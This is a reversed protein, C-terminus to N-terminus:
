SRGALREYLRKLTAFEADWNFREDILRRAVAGVRARQGAPRSLLARIGAAISAPDTPNVFEAVGTDALLERWLPFDSAVVPMGAGLYEFLKTPQSNLYNPEPLLTVFGFDANGFLPGLGARAVQGHYRVKAWGPLARAEAELAPSEFTGALDLREVEDVQGIAALMPLIGRVRSIAGVYLGVGTTSGAPHNRAVPAFEYRMPFNQVVVADPGFKRGITPTAAVIADGRRAALEIARGVMGVVPRLPSPIWAKSQIQDVLDEHADYIRKATGFGGYLFPVLEPDHAHVIDAGLSRAMAAVRRGGMWARRMRSTIDAGPLVHVTVGDQVFSRAETSKRDIAVLFTDFGTAACSRAMKHFIRTDDWPHASTAHVLRISV